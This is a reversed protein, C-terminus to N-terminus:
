SRDLIEGSITIRHMVRKQGPYDNNAKHLTVRNDWIAITGPTWKISIINSKITVLSYLYELLPASEGKTWGEFRHTFDPNVYLAERGTVPHRIIAPHIAMKDRAKNNRIRRGDNNEIRVAAKDFAEKSTHVLDLGRLTDLLGQSIVDIPTYLSAFKTHGGKSPVERGILISGMAPCVDCSHDTHWTGGINHKQDAEKVVLAIEPFGELPKLFDTTVIDGMRRALVIHEQPSLDLEDILVVGNKFVLDKIERVIHSSSIERQKIGSVHVGLSKSLKTVTFDKM